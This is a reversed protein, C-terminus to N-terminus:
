LIVNCTADIILQSSTVTGTTAYRVRFQKCGFPAIYLALSASAILAGTSSIAGQAYIDEWTSGDPNLLQPTVTCNTLSGLTFKVHIIVGYPVSSTVPLNIAASNGSAALPTLTLLNPYQLLKTPM